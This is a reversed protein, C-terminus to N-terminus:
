GAPDREFDLVSVINPHSMQAIAHAEQVFLKVFWAERALEPLIRKIAVTREFREVGIMTGRFVEAMGGAGLREGLRYRSAVSSPPKDIDPPAQSREVRLWKGPWGLLRRRWARRHARERREDVYGVHAVEKREGGPNTSGEEM